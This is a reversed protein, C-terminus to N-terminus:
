EGEVEIQGKGICKECSAEFVVQAKLNLNQNSRGGRKKKALSTDRCKVGTLSQTPLTKSYRLKSAQLSSPVTDDKSQFM